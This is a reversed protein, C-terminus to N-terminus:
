REEFMPFQVGYTTRCFEAVLLRASTQTQQPLDPCARRATTESAPPDAAAAVWTPALLLRVPSSATEAFHLDILDSLHSARLDRSGFVFLLLVGALLTAARGSRGSPTEVSAKM